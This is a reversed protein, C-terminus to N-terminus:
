QSKSAAIAAKIVKEFAPLSNSIETKKGNVFFTPTGTIGLKNGQAMDANIIDNVKSSAFDAKFKTVDLGLQRAYQEFYPNPNSAKTWVQWNSPAYLADHMEWFKGQLDAAEAARASAFANPHLSTLPFNRFQFKIQNKFETVVSEVTPEYAECASCQYDGYEILTVTANKNGEIHQSLHSASGKKGPAESKDGSLAVVGAFVLIVGVIVGLFGKSM